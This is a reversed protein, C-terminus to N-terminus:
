ELLNSVKGERFIVRLNKWKDLFYIWTVEEISPTRHSAPWGMTMIVEKKTMGKVVVGKRINELNEPSIGEVMKEPPVLTFMRKILDHITEDQSRWRKSGIVTFRKRDPLTEFVIEEEYDEIIRINDYEGSVLEVQTGFPIMQGRHYNISMVRAPDEYWINYATYIKDEPGAGVVGRMNVIHAMCGSLFLVAMPACFFITVTRATASLKM